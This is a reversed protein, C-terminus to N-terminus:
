EFWFVANPLESETRMLNYFEQYENRKNSDPFELLQELLRQNVLFNDRELKVAGSELLHKYITHDDSGGNVYQSSKSLQYRYATACVNENPHFSSDDCDCNSTDEGCDGCLEHSGFMEANQVAMEHLVDDINGVAKGNCEAFCFYEVSTWSEGPCGTEVTVLAIVPHTLVGELLIGGRNSM